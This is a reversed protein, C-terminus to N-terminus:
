NVRVSSRRDLSFLPSNLTHYQHTSAATTFDVPLDLTRIADHVSILLYNNAGIWLYYSSSVSICSGRGITALMHKGVRVLNISCYIKGWDIQLMWAGRREWGHLLDTWRLVVCACVRRGLLWLKGIRICYVCHMLWGLRRLIMQTKTADWRHTESCHIRLILRCSEVVYGHTAKAHTLAIHPMERAPVPPRGLAYM